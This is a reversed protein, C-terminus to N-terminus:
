VEEEKTPDGPELMAAGEIEHCECSWYLVGESVWPEANDCAEEEFWDFDIYVAGGYKGGVKVISGAETHYTGPKLGPHM